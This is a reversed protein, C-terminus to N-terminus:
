NGTIHLKVIINALENKVEFRISEKGYNKLQEKRIFSPTTIDCSIGKEGYIETVYGLVQNGFELIVSQALEDWAEYGPMGQQALVSSSLSRAEENTMGFLVIGSLQGKLGLAVIVDNEMFLTKELSMNGKAFESGFFRKAITETAKLFPQLYEKKM